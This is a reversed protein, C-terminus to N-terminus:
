EIKYEKLDFAQYEEITNFHIFKGPIKFELLGGQGKIQDFEDFDGTIVLDSPVKNNMPM